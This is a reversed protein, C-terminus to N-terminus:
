GANGENENERTLLAYFLWQCKEISYLTTANFVGLKIDILTPHKWEGLGAERLQNVNTPPQARDYVRRKLEEWLYIVHRAVYRCM